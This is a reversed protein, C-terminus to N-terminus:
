GIIEIQIEPIMFAIPEAIQIGLVLISYHIERFLEQVPLRREFLKAALKVPVVELYHTREQSASVRRKISGGLRQV